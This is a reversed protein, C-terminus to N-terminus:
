ESEDVKSGDELFLTKVGKKDNSRMFLYSSNESICILKAPDEKLKPDDELDLVEEHILEFSRIKWIKIKEM